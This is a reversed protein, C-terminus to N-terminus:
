FHLHPTESSIPAVSKRKRWYLGEVRFGDFTSLREARLTDLVVFISRRRGDKDKIYLVISERKRMISPALPCSVHSNSIRVSIEENRTRRINSVTHPFLNRVNESASFHLKRSATSSFYLVTNAAFTYNLKRLRAQLSLDNFVIELGRFWDVSM